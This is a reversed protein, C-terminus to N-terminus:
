AADTESVWGVGHAEIMITLLHESPERLSSCPNGSRCVIAGDIVLILQEIFQEMDSIGAERALHRLFGKLEEKHAMALSRIEHDDRNGGAIANIFGCGYYDEQSFWEELVAFINTLRSLPTSGSQEIRRFLWERWEKGEKELAAVVLAQKSGFNNYLTMRSVGSAVLVEQIGTAAIGNKCFLQRATDVLRDVPKLSAQNPEQGTEKSKLMVGWAQTLSREWFELKTKHWLFLRVPLYPDLDPSDRSRRSARYFISKIIMIFDGKQFYPFIGAIAIIRVLTYRCHASVESMYQRFLAQAHFQM